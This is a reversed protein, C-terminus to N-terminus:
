PIRPMRLPPQGPFRLMAETAVGGELVFELEAGPGAFPLLFRTESVPPVANLGGGPDVLVLTNGERVTRLSGGGGPLAWEGVLRDLEEETLVVDAARELRGAVAEGSLIEVAEIGESGEVFRARRAPDVGTIVGADFTAFAFLHEGLPLLYPPLPPPGAPPPGGPPVQEEGHLRGEILFFRFSPPAGEAGPSAPEYLGAYRGLTTGDLEVVPLDTGRVAAAVASAAVEGVLFPVRQIQAGGREPYYTTRVELLYLGPGPPTWEVDRTEGVGLDFRAPEEVRLAAPLDAGDKARARWTMEEGDRLLRVTKLEDPSIHAFRLRVTRGPTFREPPAEERGNIAPYADIRAGRSALVFLRDAAPDLVEGPELVLFGGYLGQALEYGPEGHTHYMFTGARPPTIVVSMSDDSPVPPRTSGPHGSWHGVGDYLSRLELGHWHVALPFPLRNHVTIRTPEGRRLVLTNGPVHTSDPAPVAGDQIVFGLEAGDALAGPRTGTWLDIQRTPVPDVETHGAAPLVTIGTVLGAMEHEHEDHNGEARAQRDVNFLQPEGMHRILHCHFLWNGPEGAVWSMRLTSTELMLDTVAFPREEASYVTESGGDGRADVRFYFGHLHMPHQVGSLNVIRWRVTDGVTYTLRETFPWSAGNLFTKVSPTAGEAGSASIMFFREDPDLPEGPPDVVYIGDLAGPDPIEGPPGLVTATYFSTVPEGATFRVERSEGPGLIVLTARLWPAAGPNSGPQPPGSRDGLGGLRVPHDLTNRLTVRIPTGVHARIMPGPARPPGGAEAWLAARLSPGDEGRPRWDALVAELEVLLEGDVMRGASTRNENPVARPLPAPTRVEPEQAATPASAPLLLAPLLLSLTRSGPRLPSRGSRAPGRPLPTM